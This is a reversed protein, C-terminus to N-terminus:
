PLKLSLLVAEGDDVGGSV